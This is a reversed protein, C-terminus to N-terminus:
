RPTAAPIRLGEMVRERMVRSAPSMQMDAQLPLLYPSISVSTPVTVSGVPPEVQTVSVPVAVFVPVVVPLLVPVV